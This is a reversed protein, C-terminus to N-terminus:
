RVETTVQNAWEFAELQMDMLESTDVTGLKHVAEGVEGRDDRELVETLSLMEGIEGTRKLL